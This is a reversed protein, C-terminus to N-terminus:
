GVAQGPGGLTRHYIAVNWALRPRRLREGVASGVEGFAEALFGRAEDLSGFAWWCHLVRIRFGAGLFPGGRRSWADFEQSEGHLQAVDDRGYDHVVLLRGGPRLVREAEAVQAPDVGRFASWLTVIVDASADPRDIRFTEGATVHVLRAGVAGLGMTVPSTEADVVVVDRGAVPGLSELARVLKGDPDAADALRAALPPALAFPLDAM